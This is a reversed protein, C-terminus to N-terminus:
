QQLVLMSHQCEVLLGLLRSVAYGIKLQSSSDEDVHVYRGPVPPGYIRFFLIIFVPHFHGRYEDNARNDWSQKWYSYPYLNRPTSIGGERSDGM